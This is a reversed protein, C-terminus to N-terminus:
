PGVVQIQPSEKIPLHYYADFYAEFTSKEAINVFSFPIDNEDKAFETRTWAAKRGYEDVYNIENRCMGELHEVVDILLDIAATDSSTVDENIYKQFALKVSFEALVLNERDLNVRDGMVGGVVTVLGDPYQESMQEPSTSPIWTKRVAFNAPFAPGSLQKLLIQLYTADRLQILPSTATAPM